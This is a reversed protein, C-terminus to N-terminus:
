VISFFLTQETEVTARNVSKDSVYLIIESYKLSTFLALAGSVRLCSFDIINSVNEAAPTFNDTVNCLNTLDLDIASGNQYATIGTSLIFTSELNLTDASLRYSSSGIRDNANGNKRVDFLLYEGTLLSSSSSRDLIKTDVNNNGIHWLHCSATNAAAALASSYVFFFSLAPANVLAAITASFGDDVGDTMWAPLGTDGVVLTGADVIQPQLAEAITIDIGNGSQDYLTSVFGDGAGVFALLSVTDLARNLFGIDLETDDSSRRVKMCYGTYDSKIQRVSYAAAADTVNNLIAAVNNTVPITESNAVVSISDNYIFATDVVLTLIKGTGDLTASNITKGAVTFNGAIADAPNVAKAYTLVVDAPAVNEVVASSPTWYTQWQKGGGTRFVVGNGLGLVWGM